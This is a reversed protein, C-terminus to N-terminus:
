VLQRLGAVAQAVFLVDGVDMGTITNVDALALQALTPTRVGAVFQATFLVDGVDLGAIDNVDGKKVVPTTVLAFNQITTAGSTVTVSASQTVYGAATVNVTYTGPVLSINYFGTENTTTTNGGATVTAAIPQSANSANTVRGTIIGPTILPVIIQSVHTVGTNNIVSANATVSGILGAANSTLNVTAIGAANTFATVTALGGTLTALTTNSVNMTVLKGPVALNVGTVDRLQASLVAVAGGTALSAPNATLVIGGIDSTFIQQGTAQGLLATPLTVDVATLPAIGPTNKHIPFTVMSPIGALPSDLSLSNSPDIVTDGTVILRVTTPGAVTANNGFADQAIVTITAIEAPVIRPVDSIIALKTAVGPTATVVVTDNITSGQITAKIETSGTTATFNVAVTGDPATIGSTRDLGLTTNTTFLVTQGGFPLTPNTANTVTWIYPATIGAVQVGDLVGTITDATIRSIVMQTPTLTTVAQAGPGSATTKITLNATTAATTANLLIGSFTVTDAAVSPTTVLASLDLGNNTIIPTTVDVGGLTGAVALTSPAFTIGAGVPLSINISTPAGIQGGALTTTIQINTAPFNVVGDLDLPITTTGAVTPKFVMIDNGVATVSTVQVAPATATTIVSYNVNSTAAATANLLIGSFTVTDGVVSAVTVVTSLMLGNNTIIPPTTVVVTNGVGATAALAASPAFTVGTGAPLTLNISSGLGILDGLPDTVVVDAGAQNTGGAALDTEAVVSLLPKIINIAFGSTTDKITVVIGVHTRTTANFNVNSLATASANLQFGTFTIDTGVNSSAGDTITSLTLGNLSVNPARAASIVGVPASDVTGPNSKDFTIGASAPLTLEIITGAGIQGGNPNVNNIISIIVDEGLQSNQGARLDINGVQQEVTPTRVVLAVITGGPSNGATTVIINGTGGTANNVDVRLNSVTIAEVLGANQTIIPVTIINKAANITPTGPVVTAGATRAAIPTLSTNFTVGSGAPLTITIFQAIEGIASTTTVISSFDQGFVGAATDQTAPTVTIVASAPMAFALLALVLLSLAATIHIKNIIGNSKKSM